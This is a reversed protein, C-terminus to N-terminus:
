FFIRATNLNLHSDLFITITTKYLSAEATNIVIAIEKRKGVKRLEESLM